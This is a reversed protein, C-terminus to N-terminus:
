GYSTCLCVLSSLLMGYYTDAAVFCCACFGRSSHGAAGVATSKATVSKSICVIEISSYYNILYIFVRLVQHLVQIGSFYVHILCESLGCEGQSESFKDM